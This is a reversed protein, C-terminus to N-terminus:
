KVKSPKPFRNRHIQTTKRTKSGVAAATDAARTSNLLSGILLFTMFFKLFKM